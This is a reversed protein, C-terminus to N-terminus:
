ACVIPEYVSVQVSVCKASACVKEACKRVHAFSKERCFQISKQPSGLYFNFLFLNLANEARPQFKKQAAAYLIKTCMCLTCM